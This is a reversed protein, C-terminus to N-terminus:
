HEAGGGGKDSGGGSLVNKVGVYGDFALSDICGLTAPEYLDLRSSTM